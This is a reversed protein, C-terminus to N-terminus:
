RPLYCGDRRVQVLPLRDVPQHHEDRRVGRLFDVMSSPAVVRGPVQAEDVLNEPMRSSILRISDGEHVALNCSGHGIDIGVFSSAM